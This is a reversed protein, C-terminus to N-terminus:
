SAHKDGNLKKISNKGARYALLLTGGPLVIVATWFLIEKINLKKM